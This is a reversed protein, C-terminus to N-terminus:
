QPYTFVMRFRYHPCFDKAVNESMFIMFAFTFLAFFVFLCVFLFSLFFSVNLRQKSVQLMDLLKSTKGLEVLTNKFSTIMPIREEKRTQVCDQTSCSTFQYWCFSTVSNSVCGNDVLRKKRKKTKKKQLRCHHKKVLSYMYYNQCLVTVRKLSRKFTRVNEYECTLGDREQLYLLKFFDLIENAKKGPLPIETTTAEKLQSSLM